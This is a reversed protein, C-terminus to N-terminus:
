FTPSVIKHVSTRPQKFLLIHTSSCHEDTSESQPHLTLEAFKGVMISLVRLADTWIFMTPGKQHTLSIIFFNAFFEM